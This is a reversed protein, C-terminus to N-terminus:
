SEELSYAKQKRPDQQSRGILTKIIGKDEKIVGTALATYKKEVRRNKFQKQFFILAEDTKAVLLIGSTDKDLRHIIGYRPPSGANKLEPYHELLLDVITRRPEGDNKGEAFVVVGAPKNIALLDSDEYLPELRTM